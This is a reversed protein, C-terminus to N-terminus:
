TIPLASTQNGNACSKVIDVKSSNKDMEDFQKVMRDHYQQLSEGSSSSSESMLGTPDNFRIPNNLAYAMPSVDPMMGAMADVGWM